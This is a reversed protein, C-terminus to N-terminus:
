IHILSLKGHILNIVIGRLINKKLFGSQLFGGKTFTLKTDNKYALSSFHTSKMMERPILYADNESDIFVFHAINKLEKKLTIASVISIEHEWSEGGFVVIFEM